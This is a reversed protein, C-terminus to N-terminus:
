WRTIISDAQELLVLLLLVLLLRGLELSLEWANTMTQKWEVELVSTSETYQESTDFLAEEGRRNSRLFWSTEVRVREWKTKKMQGWLLWAESVLHASRQRYCKQIPLSKPLLETNRHMSAWIESVGLLKGVQAVGEFTATGLTDYFAQRSKTIVIILSNNTELRTKIQYMLLLNQFGRVESITRSSLETSKMVCCLLVKPSELSKTM